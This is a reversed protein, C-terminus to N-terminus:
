GGAALLRQVTQVVIDAPIAVEGRAAVDHEVPMGVNIGIVRAQADVLPGGSNGQAIPADALILRRLDPIQALAVDTLVTLVKGSTVPRELYSSDGLALVPDGPLLGGLDTRFRAPTLRRAGVRLLALDRGPDRGVLTARLRRGSALRVTIQTSPRSREGTIVHNNTVILGDRSYVVGTGVAEVIRTSSRSLVARVGVVSPRVREVVVALKLSTTTTSPLPPTTGTTPLSTRTASPAPGALSSAPVSGTVSTESSLACGTLTGLLLLLVVLGSLSFTRAAAQM